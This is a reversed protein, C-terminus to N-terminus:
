TRLFTTVIFCSLMVLPFIDSWRFWVRRASLTKRSRTFLQLWRWCSFRAQSLPTSSVACSSARLSLDLFYFDFESNFWSKKKPNYSSSLQNDNVLSVFDDIKWVSECSAQKTLKMMLRSNMQMIKIGRWRRSKWRRRVISKFMRTVWWPRAMRPLRLAHPEKYGRLM